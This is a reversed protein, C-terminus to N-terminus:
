IFKTIMYAGSGPSVLIPDLREGFARDPSNSLNCERHRVRMHPCLQSGGHSRHMWSHTEDPLTGQETQKDVLLNFTMPTTELNKSITFLNVMSM